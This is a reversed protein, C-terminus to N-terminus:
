ALLRLCHEVSIQDLPLLRKIMLELTFTLHDKVSASNKNSVISKLSSPFIQACSSIAKLTM